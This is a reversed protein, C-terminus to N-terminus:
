PISFYYQDECSFSRKNIISHDAPLKSDREKPHCLQVAAVPEDPFPVFPQSHYTLKMNQRLNTHDILTYLMSFQERNTTGLFTKVANTKSWLGVSSSRLTATLLNQDPPPPPFLHFYRKDVFSLQTPPPTIM